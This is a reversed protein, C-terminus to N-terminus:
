LENYIQYNIARLGTSRTAKLTVEKQKGCKDRDLLVDPKIM